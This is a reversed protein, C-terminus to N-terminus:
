ALAEPPTALTQQVMLKTVAINPRTFRWRRKRGDADFVVVVTEVLPCGPDRCALENVTVVTDDPLHLFERTWRKIATAHEPNLTRESTALDDLPIFHHV